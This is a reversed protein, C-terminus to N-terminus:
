RPSFGTTYMFSFHSNYKGKEHLGEFLYFRFKTLNKFNYQNVSM